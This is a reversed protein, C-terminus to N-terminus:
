IDIDPFQRRFERLDRRYRWVARGRSKWIDRRSKVWPKPTGHFHVISDTLPAYEEVSGGLILSNKRQRNTRSWSSNFAPNLMLTRGNFVKNLHDQDALVYKNAAAVDRMAEYVIPESRIADTDFILVGSNFYKSIDKQDLLSQLSTIGESHKSSVKYNKAAWKAVMYDRVAGLLYGNLDISFLSSIDGKIHTDGDIYIVRGSLKEAIRLRGLMAATLRGDAQQRGGIDEDSLALCKLSISPNTQSVLNVEHWDEDTLQDGWFHIIASGSLHRLIGWLTFLTPRLYGRDTVLVIQPTSGVKLHNDSNLMQNDLTMKM